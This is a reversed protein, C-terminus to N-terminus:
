LLCLEDACGGCGCTRFSVGFISGVHNVDGPMFTERLRVATDGIKLYTMVAKNNEDQVEQMSLLGEAAARHVEDKEKRWESARVCSIV